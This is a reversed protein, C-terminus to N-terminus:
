LSFNASSQDNNGQTPTCHTCRLDKVGRQGILLL